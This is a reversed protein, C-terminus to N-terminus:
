SPICARFINLKENSLYIAISDVIDEDDDVILVSLREDMAEDLTREQELRAYEVVGM